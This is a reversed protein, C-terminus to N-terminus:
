TKTIAQTIFVGSASALFSGPISADRNLYLAIVGTICAMIVCVFGFIRKSSYYGENDKLAWDIGNKITEQIDMQLKCEM